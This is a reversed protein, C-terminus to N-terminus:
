LVTFCFQMNNVAKFEDELTNPHGNMHNITPAGIGQGRSNPMKQM